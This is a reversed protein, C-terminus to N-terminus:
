DLSSQIQLKARPPEFVQRNPPRWSEASSNNWQPSELKSGHACFLLLLLLLVSKGPRTKAELASECSEVDIALPSGFRQRPMDRSGFLCLTTPITLFRQRTLCGLDGSSKRVPDADNVIRFYRKVKSLMLVNWAENGIRPEGFTYVELDKLPLM